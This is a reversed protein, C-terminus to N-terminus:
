NIALSIVKIIFVIMIFTSLASVYARAYANTIINLTFGIIMSIVLIFAVFAIDM